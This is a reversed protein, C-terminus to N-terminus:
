KKNEAGCINQIFKNEHVNLTEQLKMKDMKEMTEPLQM